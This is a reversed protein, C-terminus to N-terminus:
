SNISAMTVLFLFIAHTRWYTASKKDGKIDGIGALLLTVVCMAMTVYDLWDM